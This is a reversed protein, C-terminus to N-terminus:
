FRYEIGSTYLNRKYDYIAINSDERIRTYQAIFTGNKSFAWSLGSSINYNHNRREINFFTNTDKYDQFFLQGSAQLKLNEWVPIALNLSLRQGHYDWNIGDTDQNIYQYKLNFFADKKFLWVWSIYTNFGSYDRDDSSVLPPAKFDSWDYGAFLEILDEEGFAMRLLPGASFNSAYDQYAPARVHSRSYSTVANLAYKGFNYGPSMSVTNSMSDHSLRNRDHLSSSFSYQGSFLWPGKLTPAYTARFSSNLVRSQELTGVPTLAGTTPVLVMNTDHQVFGSVAFRFPRELTIRQKVMDLYQRAFGALDSEPDNLIATQFHDRAQKLERERLFSLAIQIDSAQAISPDLSQAHKFSEVAAENNGEKSLVLGKLFAIKAPSIDAEEAIEIWKKAEDLNGLQLQVDILEPLAEKIRPTLTVADQFHKLADPYEMVQKYALGLFFAAVSSGPDEQRARTLAEIAEEFNEEKYQNIGERLAPVQQSFVYSHFLVLSISILFPLRAAKLAKMNIIGRMVAKLM